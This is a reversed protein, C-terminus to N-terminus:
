PNNGFKNVFYELDIDVDLVLGLDKGDIDGDCDSDFVTCTGSTGSANVAVVAWGLCDQGAIDYFISGDPEASVEEIIEYDCLVIYSTTIDSPDCVIFPSSWCVSPILLLFLIRM